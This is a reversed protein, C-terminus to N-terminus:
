RGNYVFSSPLYKIFILCAREGGPFVRMGELWGTAARDLLHSCERQFRNWRSHPRRLANWKRWIPELGPLQEEPRDLAALLEQEDFTVLM